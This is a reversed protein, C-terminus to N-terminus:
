KLKKVNFKIRMKKINNTKIQIRKTANREIEDKTM